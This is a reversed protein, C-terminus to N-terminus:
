HEPVKPHSVLFGRVGRDSWFKSEKLKWTVTWGHRRETMLPGPRPPSPCSDPIFGLYVGLM